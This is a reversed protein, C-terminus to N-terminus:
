WIMFMPANWRTVVQGSRQEIIEAKNPYPIFGLSKSLHFNVGGSELSKGYTLIYDNLRKESARGNWSQSHRGSNDYIELRYKPTISKGM